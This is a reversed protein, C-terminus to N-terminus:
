QDHAIIHAIHFKPTIRTDMSNKHFGGIRLLRQGVGSNVQCEISQGIKCFSQLQPSIKDIRERQNPYLLCISQLKAYNKASLINHIM